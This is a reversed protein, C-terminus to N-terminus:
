QPTSGIRKLDHSYAIYTVPGVVRSVPLLGWKRSDETTESHDVTVFVSSSDSGPAIRRIFTIDNGFPKIAVLTGLKFPPNAKPDVM